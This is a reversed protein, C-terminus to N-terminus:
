YIHSRACHTYYASCHSSKIQENTKPQTSCDFQGTQDTTRNLQQCLTQSVSLEVREGILGREPNPLFLLRPLIFPLM